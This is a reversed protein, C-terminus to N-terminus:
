DLFIHSWLRLPVMRPPQPGSKHFGFQVDHPSSPLSFVISMNQQSYTHLFYIFIRQMAAAASPREAAYLNVVTPEPSHAAASINKVCSSLSSPSTLKIDRPMSCSTVPIVLINEKVFCLWRNNLNTGPVDRSM